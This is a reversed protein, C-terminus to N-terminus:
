VPPQVGQARWEQEPNGHIRRAPQGANRSAESRHQEGDSRRAARRSGATAGGDFERPGPPRASLDGDVQVSRVWYTVLGAPAKGTRIGGAEDISIATAGSAELYALAAKTDPSRPAPKAVARVDVVDDLM